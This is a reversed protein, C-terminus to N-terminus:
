GQTKGNSRNFTRHQKYDALGQLHEVALILLKTSYPRCAIQRLLDQAEVFHRRGEPTLSMGGGVQAGQAQQTSAQAM